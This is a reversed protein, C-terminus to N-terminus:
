MTAIFRSRREALGRTASCIWAPIPKAGNMLADAFDNQLDQLDPM